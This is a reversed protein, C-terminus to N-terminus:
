AYPSSSAWLYIYCIYAVRGLWINTPPPLAHTPSEWSKSLAHSSLNTYVSLLHSCLAMLELGARQAQPWPLGCSKQPAFCHAYSFSIHGTPPSDNVQYLFWSLLAGGNFAWESTNASCLFLLEANTKAKKKQLIIKLRQWIIHMYIVAHSHEM